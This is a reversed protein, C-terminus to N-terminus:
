VVVVVVVVVVTGPPEDVVEVVSPETVVVGGDLTDVDVVGPLLVADLVVGGVVDGDLEVGVVFGPVTVVAPSIEDDDVVCGEPDAVVVGGVVDGM